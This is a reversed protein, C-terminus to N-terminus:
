GILIFAGWYAPNDIKMSLTEVAKQYSDHVNDSIKLHNYFETMFNMTVTDHVHWLSALVYRAGARYFTKALSFTNGYNLGPAATQCGSLTVLHSNIPNHTLDFPFFIDDALLIRSFLPNESSRSAHTAIHIFGNSTALAKKFNDIKVDEDCFLAAKRFKKRIAKGEQAAMPINGSTLAFISNQSDQYRVKQEPETIDAVDIILKLKYIDKLYEGESNVLAHFPIQNLLQDALIYVKEIEKGLKLPKFVVAYLNGLIKKISDANNRNQSYGSVTQEFLFQLKRIDSKLRDVPIDLNVFNVSDSHNVFAGVVSSSVFYNVLVESDKLSYTKQSKHKLVAPKINQLSRVKNEYQWLKNEIQSVSDSSTLQRTDKQPFKYSKLLQARLQEISEIMKVPINKSLREQPVIKQNLLSLANLNTIFSSETNGLRLYSEVLRAYIKYKDVAFFFRIEDQHLSSLMKEVIDIALKFEEAAKQYEEVSFYYEGVIFHLLRQQDMTLSEVMLKKIYAFANKRKGLQLLTEVHAIDADHQRRIDKSHVFYRKADLAASSANSLDGKSQYLRNRAFHIMGLWLDNKENIFIDESEELLEEANGLDGLEMKAIAIFYLAKGKEYTMQMANLKELITECLMITMGYQNLNINIEALDLQTVMATKTDGLDVLSDYVKEFLKLADSYKTELYLIYAISYETQEWALDMKKSKYFDGAKLYLEKAISLQNLNAFINARNFDVIAMASENKGAFIERAKDYYTLAQQNKDMRHYINGINTLVQAADIESKTKRFYELAKKGIFIGEDYRGLYMYVEIMGKRILAAARFNRRNSTIDLAQSYHALAKSYDGSWLEFRAQFTTLRYHLKDPIFQKLNNLTTLFLAASRIDVSLLRNLSRSADLLFEALDSNYESSVLLDFSDQNKVAVIKEIDIM